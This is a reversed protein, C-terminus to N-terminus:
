RLRFRLIERGSTAVIAPVVIDHEPLTPALTAPAVGACLGWGPRPHPLFTVTDNPVIQYYIFRARKRLGHGGLGNNPLAFKYENWVLHNM